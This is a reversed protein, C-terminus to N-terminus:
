RGLIFNDFDMGGLRRDGGTALVKMSGDPAVEMVTVDFTGGGLDFVLIQGTSGNDLGHAIAAATPENVIHV